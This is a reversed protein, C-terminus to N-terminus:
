TLMGFKVDAFHMGREKRMDLLAGKIAGANEVAIIPAAERAM